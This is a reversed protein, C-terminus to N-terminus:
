YQVLFQLSFKVAVPESVLIVSLIVGLMISSSFSLCM